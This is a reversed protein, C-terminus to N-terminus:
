DVRRGGEQAGVERGRGQREGCGCPGGGGVVGAFAGAWVRRLVGDGGEEVVVVRGVVALLEKVVDLQMVEGHMERMRICGLKVSSGDVVGCLVDRLMDQGNCRTSWSSM